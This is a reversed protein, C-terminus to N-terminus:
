MVKVDYIKSKKLPYDTSLWWPKKEVFLILYLEGIKDDINFLSIFDSFALLLSAFFLVDGDPLVSFCM